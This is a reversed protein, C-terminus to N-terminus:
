CRKEGVPSADCPVRTVALAAMRALEDRAGTAELTTVLRRIVDAARVESVQGWIEKLQSVLTLHM